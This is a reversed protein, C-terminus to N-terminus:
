ANDYVENPPVPPPLIKIQAAGQGGGKLGSRILLGVVLFMWM